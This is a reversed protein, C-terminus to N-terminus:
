VEPEPLAKAIIQHGPTFVRQWAEGRDYDDDFVSFTVLASSRAAEGHDTGDGYVLM